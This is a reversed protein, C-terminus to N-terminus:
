LQNPAKQSLEDDRGDRLTSSKKLRSKCVTDCHQRLLSLDFAGGVSKMMDAIACFPTLQTLKPTSRMAQRQCLVQLLLHSASIANLSEGQLFRMCNEHVACGSQIMLQDSRIDKIVEKITVFTVMQTKVRMPHKMPM